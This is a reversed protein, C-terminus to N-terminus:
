QPFLVFLPSGMLITSIGGTKIISKKKYKRIMKKHYYLSIPANSYYYKDIAKILKFTSYPTNKFYKQKHFLRRFYRSIVRFYLVYKPINLFIILDAKNFVPLVYTTWTGEIIWTKKNAIKKVLFKRESVSREIDFKHKYKISDLEYHKIKLKKSLKKALYTKGSGYIGLIYIRKAQNINRM